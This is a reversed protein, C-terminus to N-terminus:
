CDPVDVVFYEAANEIKDLLAMYEDDKKATVPKTV